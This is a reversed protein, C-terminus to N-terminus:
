HHQRIKPNTRLHLFWLRFWPVFPKWDLGLDTAVFAFRGAPASAGRPPTDSPSRQLRFPFFFVNAHFWGTTLPPQRLLWFCERRIFTPRQTKASWHGELFSTLSPFLLRTLRQLHRGPGSRTQMCSQSQRWSADSRVASVCVDVSVKLQSDSILVSSTRKKALLPHRTPPRAWRVGAAESEHLNGVCPPTQEKSAVKGDWGM